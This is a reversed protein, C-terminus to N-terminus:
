EKIKIFFSCSDWSVPSEPPRHNTKICAYYPGVAPTAIPGDLIMYGNFEKKLWYKIRTALHLKHHPMIEHIYKEGTELDEVYLYTAPYDSPIYSDLYRQGRDVDWVQQLRFGDRNLLYRLSLQQVTTTHSYHTGNFLVSKLEETDSVIATHYSYITHGNTWITDGDNGYSEGNNWAEYAKKLNQRM